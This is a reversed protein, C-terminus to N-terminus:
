LGWAPQAGSALAATRMREFHDPAEAARRLRRAREDAGRRWAARWAAADKTHPGHPCTDVAAGALGARLGLTSRRM